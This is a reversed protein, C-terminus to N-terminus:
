GRAGDRLVTLLDGECALSAKRLAAVRERQEDEPLARLATWAPGALADAASRQGGAGPLPKLDGTFWAAAVTRAALERVAKTEDYRREEEDTPYTRLPVVCPGTGAGALLARLTEDRTAGSLAQAEFDVPVSGAPQPPAQPRWAGLPWAPVTERVESPPDPLGALLRLAEEGPGEPGALAALEKEHVRTVCVRGECVPATAAEDIVYNSDHSAPLLAVGVVAGVVLPVLALLRARARGAVLLLFGTGALGLLWVAQGANVRWAVTLFTSHVEALSPSLLVIRNPFLDKTVADHVLVVSMLTVIALTPPIFASPVTRAIGMGLWAGAVLALAGVLVIPLWRLHAYGDNGIVQVGGYLFILLYAVALALGLAGATSAARQWVPRPTTALLETMRSRHDRLGQVAGAALAPPWLFVMLYREWWAASTWQGTWAEAGETWPGGGFLQFLAVSGLLLLLGTWLGTSRRLEIRLIRGGRRADTNRTRDTEHHPKM